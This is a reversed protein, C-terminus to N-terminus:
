PHQWPLVDLEDDSGVDIQGLFLFCKQGRANLQVKFVSCQRVRAHLSCAWGLSGTLVVSIKSLALMCTNLPSHMVVQFSLPQADNIVCKFNQRPLGRLTSNCVRGRIYEQYWRSRPDLVGPWFYANCGFYEHPRYVTRDHSIQLWAPHVKIQLTTPVASSSTVLRKGKYCWRPLLTYMAVAGTSNHQAVAAREASLLRLIM